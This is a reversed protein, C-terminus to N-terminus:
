ERSKWVAVITEGLTSRTEGTLGYNKAFLYYSEEEKPNDWSTQSLVRPGRIFSRLHTCVPSSPKQCKRATLNEEM